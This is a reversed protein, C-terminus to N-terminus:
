QHCLYPQLTDGHIKSRKTGRNRRVRAAVNLGALNRLAATLGELDKGHYTGDGTGISPRVLVLNPIELVQEPVDLRRKKVDVLRADLGEPMRRIFQGPFSAHKSCQALFFADSPIVRDPQEDNYTKIGYHSLIDLSQAIVAISRAGAFTQQM